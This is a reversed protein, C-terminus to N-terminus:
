IGYRTKAESMIKDRDSDSIYSRFVMIENFSELARNGGPFAMTLPPTYTSRPIVALGTDSFNFREETANVRDVMAKLNRNLGPTCLASERGDAVGFASYVSNDTWVHHNNFATAGNNKFHHAGGAGDGGGVGQKFVATATASTSGALIANNIPFYGPDTIYNYAMAPKGNSVYFGNGNTSIYPADITHQSTHYGNGSQDYMKLVSVVGQGAYPVLAGADLEGNALFGIDFTTTGSKCQIAAGTYAGRMKRLSYIATPTSTLTDAIYVQNSLKKQLMAYYFNNLTM